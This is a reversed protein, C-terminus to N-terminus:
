VIHTFPQLESLRTLLCFLYTTLFFFLCGLWLWCVKYFLYVLYWYTFHSFYFVNLFIRTYVNAIWFFVFVVHDPKWSTSSYDFEYFHVPFHHKGLALSVPFPLQLLFHCGVRTNKGPSDWPHPRSTPQRRHPRVSDSM